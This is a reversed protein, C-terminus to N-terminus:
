RRDEGDAFRSFYGYRGTELWLRISHGLGLSDHISPKRAASIAVSLLNFIAATILLAPNLTPLTQTVLGRCKLESMCVGINDMAPRNSVRSLAALLTLTYPLVFVDLIYM